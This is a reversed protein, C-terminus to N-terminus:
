IKKMEKKNRNLTKKTKRLLLFGFKEPNALM